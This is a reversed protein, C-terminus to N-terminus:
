KYFYYKKNKCIFNTFLMFLKYMRNCKSFDIPILSLIGLSLVVISSTYFHFLCLLTFVIGFLSGIILDEYELNFLGLNRKISQLTIYM